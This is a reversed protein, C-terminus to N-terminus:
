VRNISYLDLNATQQSIWVFSAFVSQPCSASNKFALSQPKHLVCETRSSIECLSSLREVISSLRSVASVKDPKGIDGLIFVAASVV